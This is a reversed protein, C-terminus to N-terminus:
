VARPDERETGCNWCATFQPEITQGCRRCTWSPPSQAPPPTWSFESGCEPCRSEPLGRLDYGCTPCHRVDGGPASEDLLERARHADREDTWVEPAVRFVPLEGAAAGLGEGLVVSRVGASELLARVRQADAADRAKYVRQM